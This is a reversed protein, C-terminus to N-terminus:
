RTFEVPVYKYIGNIINGIRYTKISAKEYDYTSLKKDWNKNSFYLVAEMMLPIRLNLFKNKNTITPLDIEINFWAIENLIVEEEAFRISWSHSKYAAKEGNICSRLFPDINRRNWNRRSKDIQNKDWKIRKFDCPKAYYKANQTQIYFKLEVFYHGQNSLEINKFEFLCVKISAKAKLSM